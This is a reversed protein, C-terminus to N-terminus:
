QVKLCSVRLYTGSSQVHQMPTCGSFRKDCFACTAKKAGSKKPDTHNTVDFYKWVYHPAYSLIQM